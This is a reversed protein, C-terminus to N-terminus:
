GSTVSNKVSDIEIGLFTLSIVSGVSKSQEVPLGALDCTEQMLTMNNKCESSYLAGM